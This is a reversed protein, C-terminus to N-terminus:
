AARVETQHGARWTPLYVWKRRARWDRESLKFWIVDHLVGDTGLHQEPLVGSSRFGLREARRRSRVNDAYATAVMWKVGVSYFMFDYFVNQLEFNVGRGQYSKDGIAVDNLASGDDAHYHIRRWGIHLGTEKVFIGLLFGGVNDFKTIYKILEERSYDRAVKRLPVMIDPDAWWALMRDTADAPKLTRMFYNQSELRVDHGRRWGIQDPVSSQTKTTPVNM